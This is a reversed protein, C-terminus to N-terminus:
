KGLNSLSARDRTIRRHRRRVQPQGSRVLPLPLEIKVHRLRHENRALSLVSKVPIVRAGSKAPIVM